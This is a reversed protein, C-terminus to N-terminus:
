DGLCAEQLLYTRVAHEGQSSLFHVMGRRCFHVHRGKRKEQQRIMSSVDQSTEVEVGRTAPVV